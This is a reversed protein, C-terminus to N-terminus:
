VSADQGAGLEGDDMGDSDSSSACGHRYGRVQGASVRVDVGAFADGTGGDFAEGGGANHAARVPVTSMSNSRANPSFAREALRSLGMGAAAAEAHTGRLLQGTSRASMVVGPSEGNDRDGCGSELDCRQPTRLAAGAAWSRSQVQPPTPTRHPVVATVTTGYPVDGPGASGSTATDAVAAGAASSNGHERARKRSQGSGAPAQRRKRKAAAPRRARGSGGRRRASPRAAAAVRTRLVGLLTAWGPLQKILQMTVPHSFGFCAPGSCDCSRPM